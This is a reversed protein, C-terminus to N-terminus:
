HRLFGRKVFKKVKPKGPVKSWINIRIATRITGPATLTQLKSIAIKCFKSINKDCHNAVAKDKFSGSNPICRKQSQM